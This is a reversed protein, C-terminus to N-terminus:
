PITVKTPQLRLKKISQKTRLPKPRYTNNYIRNTKNYILNNALLGKSHSALHDVDLVPNIDNRTKYLPIQSRSM